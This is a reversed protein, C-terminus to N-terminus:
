RPRRGDPNLQSTAALQAATAACWPCGRPCGNRQEVERTIGDAVTEGTNM